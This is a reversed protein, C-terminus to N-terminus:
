TQLHQKVLELVEEIQVKQQQGARLKHILESEPSEVCVPNWQHTSSTKTQPTKKRKHFIQLRKIYMYM